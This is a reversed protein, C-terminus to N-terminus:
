QQLARARSADSSDNTVHNWYCDWWFWGGLEDVFEFASIILRPPLIDLGMEQGIKMGIEVLSWAVTSTDGAVMPLQLLLLQWFYSKLFGHFNKGVLFSYMPSLHKVCIGSLYLISLDWSIASLKRSNGARFDWALWVKSGANYNGPWTCLKGFYM